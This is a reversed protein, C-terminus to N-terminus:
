LLISIRAHPRLAEMDLVCTKKRIRLAGDADVLEYLYHGVYVDTVGDKSRYVAFSARVDLAGGNPEVLINSVMHRTKSRPYESHATRKSLRIVRERIRTHDDNIYYLSTEPDAEGEPIDTPPVYYHADETFLAYWDDLCWRDLLDAERSLFEEVRRQLLLTDLDV